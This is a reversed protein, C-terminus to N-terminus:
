GIDKKIDKDTWGLDRAYEKLEEKSNLESMLKLDDDKLHPYLDRLFKVSKNDTTKKPLGLWPHYHIGMGPSVTTAMLWHLKEHDKTSIDFFNKNLKENTSMLYYAQLDPSGQVTAGWRIMMFGSFEKLEADTLKNYFSRDKKDFAAMERKIDLAPQKKTKVTM